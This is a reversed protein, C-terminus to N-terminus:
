NKGKQKEQKLSDIRDQDPANHEPAERRDSAPSDASRKSGCCAGLFGAVLLSSFLWRKM